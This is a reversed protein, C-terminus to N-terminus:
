PTEGYIIALEVAEVSFAQGYSRVIITNVGTFLDTPRVRHRRVSVAEPPPTVRGPEPFLLPDDPTEAYPFFAYQRALDIGNLLVTANDPECDPAVIQLAIQRIRGAATASAIDDGIRIHVTTEGGAPVTFPPTAGGAVSGAAIYLKDQWRVTEIAGLEDMLCRDYDVPADGTNGQGGDRRVAATAKAFNMTWSMVNFLYIGDAGHALYTMAMARYTELPVVRGGGPGYAVNRDCGAFIQVGPLKQRADAIDHAFEALFPTLLTVMDVLGFRAWTPLDLGERRCGLIDTPVIVAVAVPHGLRDAAAGTLSRVDKLLQTLVPACESAHPQPFFRCNRTFNLEVGDVDYTDLVHQIRGLYHARVASRRYDLETDVRTDAADPNIRNHLNDYTFRDMLPNFAQDKFHTDNMRFSAFFTLGQERARGLVMAFPDCGDALLQRLNDVCTDGDPHAYAAQIDPDVVADTGFGCPYDLTLTDVQTGTIKDVADLIDQPEVPPEVQFINYFDNNVILRTGM